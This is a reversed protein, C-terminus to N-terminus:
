DVEVDFEFDAIGDFTGVTGDQIRPDVILYGGHKRHFKKVAAATFFVKVYADKPGPRLSFRGRGVVPGTRRERLLLEGRCRGAAAVCKLPVRAHNGRLKSHAGIIYLSIEASPCPTRSSPKATFSFSAYRVCGNLLWAVGEEDATIDGETLSPPDLVIVTGDGRVLDLTKRADDFAAIYGGAFSPNGLRGSNALNTVPSGLEALDIGRRSSVAIRGDPQLDLSGFAPGEVEALAPITYLTVGSALDVLEIREPAYAHVAAYPGAIAVPMRAGSAWAIPTWTSGDFIMARFRSPGTQESEDGFGYEPVSETLLMRNGDVQVIGPTWANGDPDPTRRVLRLPGAPPGTYVRHEDPKAEVDVALAVRQASASLQLGGLGPKAVNVLTRPKGGTRPIATLTLPGKIPQSAVLVDPGSLAIRQVDRNHVLQVAVPDAASATGALALTASVASLLARHM